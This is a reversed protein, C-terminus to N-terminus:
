GIVPSAGRYVFTTVLTERILTIQTANHGHANAICEIDGGSFRSIFEMMARRTTPNHWGLDTASGPEQRFRFAPTKTATHYLVVDTTHYRGVKFALDGNPLPLEFVFKSSGIRKINAANPYEALIAARGQEANMTPGIKM